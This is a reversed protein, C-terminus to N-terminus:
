HDTPAPLSGCFRLALQYFDSLEQGFAADQGSITTIIEEWSIVSLKIFELSPKFWDHYWDDKDGGYASVRAAVKAGISEATMLQEFNNIRIKGAPALVCFRLARMEAASRKARSLLEVLCAVNRAAQDYDPVRGVGAALPAMLKAEVVVLQTGEPALSLDAKGVEGIRFHGIVGDAHTRSEGLPDGRRRPRFASPLLAESFWKAGPPFHLPHDPVPHASFWQMVLRGLWGENYLLTPPFNPQGGAAAELMKYIYESASM